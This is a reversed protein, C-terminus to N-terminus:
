FYVRSPTLSYEGLTRSELKEGPGLSLAGDAPKGNEAGVAVQSRGSRVPVGPELILEDEKGELDLVTAEAGAVLRLAAERLHSAAEGLRLAAKGLSLAAERDEKARM